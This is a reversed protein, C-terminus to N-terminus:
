AQEEPCVVAIDLPDLAITGTYIEGSELNRYTGSLNVTVAYDNFNQV